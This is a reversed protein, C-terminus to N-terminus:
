KVLKFLFTTIIVCGTQFLYDTSSVADPIVVVAIILDYGEKLWM